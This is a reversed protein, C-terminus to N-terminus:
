EYNKFAKNQHCFYQLKVKITTTPVLKPQWLLIEYMLFKFCIYIYKALFESGFNTDTVQSNEFNRKYVRELGKKRVRERDTYANAFKIWCFGRMGSLSLDIHFKFELVAFM